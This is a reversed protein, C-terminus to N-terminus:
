GFGLDKAHYLYSLGSNIKLNIHEWQNSEIGGMLLPEEGGEFFSTSTTYEFQQGRIFKDVSLSIACASRASINFSFSDANATQALILLPAGALIFSAILIYKKM